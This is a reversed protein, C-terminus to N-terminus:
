WPDGYLHLEPDDPYMDPDAVSFFVQQGTRNQVDHILLAYRGTPLTKFDKSKIQLQGHEDQTIQADLTVTEGKGTPADRYTVDVQYDGDESIPLTSQPNITMTDFSGARMAPIGNPYGWSVEEQTPMVALTNEAPSYTAGIRLSPEDSPEGTEPSVYAPNEPDTEDDAVRGPVQVMLNGPLQDFSEAGSLDLIGGKSEALMSEGCLNNGIKVQYKGDPAPKQETGTGPITLKYDTSGQNQQVLKPQGGAGRWMDYARPATGHEELWADAHTQPADPNGPVQRNCLSSGDTGEAQAPAALSLSGLALAGAAGLAACTRIRTNTLM